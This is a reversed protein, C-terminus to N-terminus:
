RLTVTEKIRLFDSDHDSLAACIDQTCLASVSSGSTPSSLQLSYNLPWISQCGRGEGSWHPTISVKQILPMIPSPERKYRSTVKAEAIDSIHFLYM